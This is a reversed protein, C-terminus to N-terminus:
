FLLRQTRIRNRRQLSPPNQERRQFLHFSKWHLEQGLPYQSLFLNRNCVAATLPHCLSCTLEIKGLFTKTWKKRTLVPNKTEVFALFSYLTRTLLSLHTQKFFTPPASSSSNFQRTANMQTDQFSHPVYSSIWNVWDLSSLLFIVTSQSQCGGM